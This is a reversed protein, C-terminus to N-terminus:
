RAENRTENYNSTESQNGEHRPGELLLLSDSNVMGSLADAALAPQPRVIPPFPSSSLCPVGPHPLPVEADGYCSVLATHHSFRLIPNEDDSGASSSAAAHVSPQPSM